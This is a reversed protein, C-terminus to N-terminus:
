KECLKGRVWASWSLGAKKAMADQAAFEEPTASLLRRMLVTVGSPGGRRKTTTKKKAAM